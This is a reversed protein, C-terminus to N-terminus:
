LNWVIFVVQFSSLFGKFESSQLVNTQPWSLLYFLNDNSKVSLSQRKLSIDDGTNEDYWESELLHSM